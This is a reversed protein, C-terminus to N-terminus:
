PFRLCETTSREKQKWKIGQADLGHLRMFDWERKRYRQAGVFDCTFQEVPGHVVNNLMGFYKGSLTPKLRSKLPWAQGAAFVCLEFEYLAVHFACVACTHHSLFTFLNIRFISHPRIKRMLMLYTWLCISCMNGTSFPFSILKRTYNEFMLELLHFDHDPVYVVALTQNPAYFNHSLMTTIASRCDALVAGVM